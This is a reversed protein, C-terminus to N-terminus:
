CCMDQNCHLQSGQYISNCSMGLPKVMKHNKHQQHCALDMGGKKMKGVGHKLKTACLVRVM